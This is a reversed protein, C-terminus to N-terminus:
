SRSLIKLSYGTYNYPTISKLEEKVSDDIKLGDIFRDISEKTVGEKGRTLEKLSEYPENVGERRLITQIAEAIVAWNDSLEKEIKEKNIMLKDIGRLLSKWAIFTHAFPVGINRSVTSDTLDRQLRSVPLDKALFCFLANAIELNGESNEFDIPNVKHPMASSGVEGPKIKQKFFNMSIYSWIDRDLDLLVTNIRMLLHFLGAWDDYHDIQTTVQQRNLKLKEKLFTDAFKNWEIDPYAVKHANFNGTAGGFKGSHRYEKLAKILPNLRDAFVYLEKGMTTPSAPQGHTYALMPIDEWKHSLGTLTYVVEDLVPLMVLELSDKVAMPMATNNVDQSTLGFHIFEKYQELGIVKIKDKIFYEVAKVDHNITSELEKIRYADKETFNTYLERLKNLKERKVDILQPLPIECLAIFYEVETKIRYKILAAESYYAALPLTLKSYRGDVPSISWFSHNSM